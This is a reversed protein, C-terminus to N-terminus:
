IGGGLVSEVDQAYVAVTMPTSYALAWRQDGKEIRLREYAQTVQWGAECLLRSAEQTSMKSQDGAFM